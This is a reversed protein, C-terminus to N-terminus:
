MGIELLVEEFLHDNDADIDKKPTPEAKVLSILLVLVALIILKSSM